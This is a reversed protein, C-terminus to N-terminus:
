RNALAEIKQALAIDRDSVGGEDHTSLAITVRNYSNSWDPHHNAAQAALAVEAMFGFAQSFGKFRFEKVIAKGAADYTWGPLGKLAVNREKASLKTM